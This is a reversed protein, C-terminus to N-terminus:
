DLAVGYRILAELHDDEDVASFSGGRVNEYGYRGFCEIVLPDVDRRNRVSGMPTEFPDSQVLGVPKYKKTWEAGRGYEHKRLTRKLDRTYGVFYKGDRLELVYRVLAQAAFQQKSAKVQRFYGYRHLKRLTKEESVECWSGGRVRQWGEREMWEITVRNEYKDEDYETEVYFVQRESCRVVKHLKTWEAGKGHLHQRYRGDPHRTKGVYWFGDELQLVYIHIPYTSDPVHMAVPLYSFVAIRVIQGRDAPERGPCGGQM